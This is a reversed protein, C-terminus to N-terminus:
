RDMWSGHDGFEDIKKLGAQYKKLEEPSALSLPPVEKGNLDAWVAFALWHDPLLRRTTLISLPSRDLAKMERRLNSATVKSALGKRKGDGGAGRGEAIWGLQKELKDHIFQIEDNLGFAEHMAKQWPYAEDGDVDPMTGTKALTKKMVKNNLIARGWADGMDRVAELTSQEIDTDDNLQEYRALGALQMKSPTGYKDRYGAPSLYEGEKGKLLGTKEIKLMKIFDSAKYKRTAQVGLSEDGKSYVEFLKPVTVCGDRKVMAKATQIVAKEDDIYSM